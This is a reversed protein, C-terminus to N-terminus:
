PDLPVRQVTYPVNDGPNTISWTGLGHYWTRRRAGARINEEHDRCLADAILTATDLHDAAFRITRTTDEDWWTLRVIM